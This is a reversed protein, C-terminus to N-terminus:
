KRRFIGGVKEALGEKRRLENFFYDCQIATTQHSVIQKIESLESDGCGRLYRVLSKNVNEAIQDEIVVNVVYICTWATLDRWREKDKKYIKKLKLIYEGLFIEFFKRHYFLKMLVLVDSVSHILLMYEDLFERQYVDYDQHGLEALSFDSGAIDNSLNISNSGARNHEKVFLGVMVACTKVSGSLDSKRRLLYAQQLIPWGVKILKKISCDEIAQTIVDVVAVDKFICEDINKLMSIAARGRSSVDLSSLCATVMPEISCKSMRCIVKRQQKYCNWFEDEHKKSCEIRRASLKVAFPMAQTVGFMMQECKSVEAANDAGSTILSDCLRDTRADDQGIYDMFIKIVSDFLAPFRTAKLISQTMVNESNQIGCINKILLQMVVCVPQEGNIGRSFDYSDMLWRLYFENTYINTHGNLYFIMKEVNNGTNQYELFTRYESPTAQSLKDLYDYVNTCTEVAEGVYQYIIEILLDYLTYIMYGVYRCSFVWLEAFSNLDPIWGSEHVKLLLKCGVDANDAEKCYTRGFDIVSIFDKLEFECEDRKLLKYYLYAKCLTGDIREYSTSDIFKSFEEIEEFDFTISSAMARSFPDVKIGETMYGNLFDMVIHRSSRYESAYNFYNADPRVGILYFDIGESKIRPSRMSEHDGVYTNFGFQSIVKEPLVRQMAAAWLVLSERTDNLYFPIGADRAALVCSILQAFEEEKDYLFESLQEDNIVSGYSKIDLAPLPPVPSSASLEDDTMTTKIYSEAFMEAPRCIMESKDFILAYIIYNGFRGSYDRGLYTSQAVCGRGNPLSFYAFAYPFIDGIEKETPALPLEKPALYQMADKIATCEVETIGESKSYVMYGKEAFDGNKWSTYIYQLARM